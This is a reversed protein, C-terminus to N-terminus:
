GKRHPWKRYEPLGWVKLPATMNYAFPVSIIGAIQRGLLRLAQTRSNNSFFKELGGAENGMRREELSLSILGM